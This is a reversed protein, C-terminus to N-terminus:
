QKQSIKSEISTLQRQLDDSHRIVLFVAALTTCIGVIVALALKLAFSRKRQTVLTETIFVQEQMDSLQQRVVEEKDGAIDLAQINAKVTENNKQAQSLTDCLGKAKAAAQASAVSAEACAGAVQLAITIGIFLFAM